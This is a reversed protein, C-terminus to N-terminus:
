KRPADPSMLPDAEARAIMAQFRPNSRLLDFDPNLRLAAATFRDARGAKEMSDMVEDIKGEAILLRTRRALELGGNVEESLRLYKEAEATRGLLTLLDVRWALLLGSTPQDALRQDVLKLASEWELQAADNRGAMQLAKGDLYAVPGDLGNSQIWDRRIGERFKLWEEPKRMWLYVLYASSTGYDTQMVSVPIKDLAAKASELDGHWYLSIMIKLGLNGWFPQIALSRDLPDDVSAYRSQSWELWARESWATASYQPNKALRSFDDRAEDWHGVNRDLIGLAFLARPEDKREQLLQHLLRGAESAFTSTQGLGTGTTAGRVLYCAQAVRGEYSDPALQLARAANARAADQRGKSNDFNHYIYWSDVQSWAAWAEADMPDLETARKCMGDAIELEEPGLETKNLQVWAKAVLNQAESPPPVAPVAAAPMAGNRWPQWVALAACLVVGGLTPALWPRASKVPRPEQAASGKRGASLVPEAGAGSLLRKVRECFSEPTDGGPLRTWQIRLFEDPVRADSDRTGDIVVPLLFVADHAMDLLRQTALNWERRFYGESREQTHASIVPVFLACNRIQKKIKADWADGGRLESQDFWVEIGAARLAECIHKAAEADQSAYSLFVAGKLTWIKPSDPM